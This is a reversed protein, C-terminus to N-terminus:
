LRLDACGGDRECLQGARSCVRLVPPHNVHMTNRFIDRELQELVAEFEMGHEPAPESLDALLTAPDAKAGVPQSPLTALHEVLRDVVRYGIERMREASFELRSNM